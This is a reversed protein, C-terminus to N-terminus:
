LLTVLIYNYMNHLMSGTSLKRMSTSTSCTISHFTKYLTPAFLHISLGVNCSHVSSAYVYKCKTYLSSNSQYLHISSVYSVSTLDLNYEILVCLAVFPFIFNCAIYVMSQNDYDCAEYYIKTSCASTGTASYVHLVRCEVVVAPTYVVGPYSKVYTRM